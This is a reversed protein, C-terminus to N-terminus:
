TPNVKRPKKKIPKADPYTVINHVVLNPDLGSTDDYSFTFLKYFVVLISKALECESKTLVDGVYIIKPNEPDNRIDIKVLGGVHMHSGEKLHKLVLLYSYYYETPDFISSMFSSLSVEDLPFQPPIYVNCLLFFGSSPLSFDMFELDISILSDGYLPHYFYDLEHIFVMNFFFVMNSSLPDDFFDLPISCYSLTLSFHDFYLSIDDVDFSQDHIDINTFEEELM